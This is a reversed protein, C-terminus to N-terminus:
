RTRMRRPKPDAPLAIRGTRRGAVGQRQSRWLAWGPCCVLLPGCCRIRLKPSSLVRCSFENSMLECSMLERSMLERSILNRSILNRSIVARSILDRARLAM